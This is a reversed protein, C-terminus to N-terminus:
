QKLAGKAGEVQDRQTQPVLKPTMNPKELNGARSRVIIFVEEINRFNVSPQVVAKRIFGEEDNVLRLVHGVILGKPYIGGYGSTILTDGTLVDSDRAINVMEPELRNSGNGQMVSAVRSEPRQVIVGISSRPDLVTQVRSSHPFVDTVYGVVGSPVVVAMNVQMGEEAGRDITFTDTWGGMDRMVVKAPVMDFQPTDAEFRIMQRLRINEAVLEDYNSTKQLLRGNEQELESVYQAKDLIADIFAIGTRFGDISKSMGYAFPTTVQELPVTVFPVQTRHKWGYGFLGMIICGLVVLIMVKKESSLM